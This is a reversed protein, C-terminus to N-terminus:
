EDSWFRGVVHLLLLVTGVAAGLLLRIVGGITWQPGGFVPVGLAAFVLFAGVLAGVILMTARFAVGSAEDSSM